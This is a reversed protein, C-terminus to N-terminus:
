NPKSGPFNRDASLAPAAPQPPPLDSATVVRKGGAVVVGGAEDHRLVPRQETYQYTERQLIQGLTDVVCYTFTQSGTQHLVHLDMARDLMVDPQTFGFFPGIPVLRATRNGTADTLRVFLKMDGKVDSRELFYKRIVPPHNSSFPVGPEMDTMNMLEYEAAKAVAPPVGVELDPMNALRIGNVITFSVPTVTVEQGWQPIKITAKITYRGPQRFDFYPTLDFDSSAFLGAPVNTEGATYKHDDRLLPVVRDKEGLVTFTLWDSVTGLLLDQGSRNQITLKLDMKEDPLLESQELSVGALVGVQSRALPLLGFLLTWLVVTRKMSSIRVRAAKGPLRSILEM